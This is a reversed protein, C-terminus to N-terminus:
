DSAEESQVLRLVGLGIALELNPRVHGRLVRSLYSESIGTDMAISKRMGRQPTRRRLEDVVQQELASTLFPRTV